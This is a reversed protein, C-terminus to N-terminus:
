ARWHCLGIDQSIHTEMHAMAAWARRSQKRRSLWRGLGALVAVGFPESVRPIYVFSGSQVVHASM